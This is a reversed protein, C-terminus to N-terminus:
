FLNTQIILLFNIENSIKVKTYFLNNGINIPNLKTIENFIDLYNYFSLLGTLFPQHNEM